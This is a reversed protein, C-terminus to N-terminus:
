SIFYYDIMKEVMDAELPCDATEFTAILNTGQVIGYNLYTQLKAFANKSYSPVDMKGFHEWYYIKGTRPHKITFDPYYATEGLKLLCEYRFPIKKMHLLMVILVESKSRVYIGANTKCKLTEPYLESRTYPMHMWEQFEQCVPKFYPSLLEAYAPESLLDEAKKGTTNHHRLYFDIATMEQLLDKKKLSLYKRKALEEAYARKKKSICKSIKGDSEYWKYSNGNKACYFNKDPIQSLELDISEIQEELYKKEELVTKLNM